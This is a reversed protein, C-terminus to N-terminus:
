TTAKYVMPDLRKKWWRECVWQGVYFTLAAVGIIATLPALWIKNMQWWEGIITPIFALAVALAVMLIASRLGGILYAPIAGLFAVMAMWRILDVSKDATAAKQKLADNEQKIGAVAALWRINLGIGDAPTIVGTSVADKIISTAPQAEDVHSPPTEGANKSHCAMMGVALVAAVLALGIILLVLGAKSRPQALAPQELPEFDEADHLRSPGYEDQLNRPRQIM